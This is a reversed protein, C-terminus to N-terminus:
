PKKIIMTNYQTYGTPCEFVKPDPMAFQVNKFRMVSTNEKEKTQIQIPFDKLDSANWTIAEIISNTEGSVVVKNKVCPHGEITENGQPTKTIKRPKSVAEVEEKPMPMTTYYKQQPYIIYIQNQDPRMISIVHSMGSAKLNEIAGPPLI